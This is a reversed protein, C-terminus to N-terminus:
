STGPRSRVLRHLGRELDLVEVAALRDLDDRLPLQVLDCPLAELSTEDSEDTNALGRENTKVQTQDGSPRRRRPVPDLGFSCCALEAPLECEDPRRRVQPSVLSRTWRPPVM